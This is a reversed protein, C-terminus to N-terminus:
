QAEGILTFAAWERPDPHQQMTTLMAQRLAQAKDPQQLLNQYFATMLTATPADPVQWLSVIVSPVGALVFSRSLGIVGDGTIRGRGTDCASLVVLDANLKLDLIESATLLGDDKGSPALAIAGPIGLGKLDDLLGHTALHVLKTQPMQQVVTAETAQQGTLAQANLLTAIANAEQEAGPLSPLPEPVGGLIPLSPMTPNGVILTKASAQSNRNRQQHTLDLVQISPSTLVTHQEILYKGSGDQFAPFPVLFLSAQPMFVIRAEPDTPLLDAIPQILLQYLGQLSSNQSRESSHTDFARAVTEANENFTLGRGPVGIAGRAQTVMRDLASTTGTSEASSGDLSSLNELDTQRFAIEGTPKVVWIFLTTAQPSSPNTQHAIAYEVLTSNQTKAIQRIQALTPPAIPATTPNQAENKSLRKALLEVFARARSREAMELAPEPQKQAVLVQQLLSYTQSQTEFISVKEADTLGPRLAELVEIAQRLTREAEPQGSQHQVRGISSLTVGENARDGVERHIALAQQYFKLAQAHNGQQEYIHGLNSLAVGEGTRDGVQKYLALAQQYFQLAQDAQKFNAYVQGLNNLTTAEGPRDGLEQYIALAQQHLKLASDYQGLSRYVRGTNNLTAAQGVQVLSAPSLATGVDRRLAIDSRSFEVPAAYQGVVDYLLKMETFAAAADPRDSFQNFIGLAQQTSELAEKYQGISFYLGGLNNLITAKAGQYVQLEDFIALAQRYAELAKAYQGLNVYVVGINGLTTGEGERDRLERQITLAQQYVALAQPYQGLRFHVSGIENLRLRESSRDGLSQIIALSRQYFELAQPYRDLGESAAGMDTLTAWEGERDGVERRIALAQRYFELAQAYQGLSYHHVNAINNLTQGEGARAGVARFIALAKQYTALAEEPQGQRFLDYGQQNLYVAETIQEANPQEQAVVIPEIAKAVQPMVGLCLLSAVVLSLSKCPLSM